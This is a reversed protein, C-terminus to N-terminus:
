DRQTTYCEETATTKTSSLRRSLHNIININPIILFSAAPTSATDATSLHFIAHIRLKQGIHWTAPCIGSQTQYQDKSPIRLTAHPHDCLLTLLGKQQWPIRFSHLQVTIRVLSDM